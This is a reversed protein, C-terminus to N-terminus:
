DIFREPIRTVRGVRVRTTAAVVEFSIPTAAVAVTPPEAVFVDPNPIPPAATTPQVTNGTNLCKCVNQGKHCRYTCSRGKNFCSCSKANCFGKCTCRTLVTVGPMRRAEVAVKESIMPADKWGDQADKLEHLRVDNSFGVYRCHYFLHRCFYTTMYYGGKLKHVRGPPYLRQLVGHQVAIRLM